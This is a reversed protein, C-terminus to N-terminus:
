MAFKMMPKVSRRVSAPRVMSLLQTRNRRRRAVICVVLQAVFNVVRDYM